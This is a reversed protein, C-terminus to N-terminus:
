TRRETFLAFLLLTFLLALNSVDGENVNIVINNYSGFTTYVLDLGMQHDPIQEAQGALNKDQSKMTSINRKFKVNLFLYM